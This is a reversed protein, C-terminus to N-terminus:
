NLKLTQIKLYYGNGFEKSKIRKFKEITGKLHKRRMKLTISQCHWYERNANM